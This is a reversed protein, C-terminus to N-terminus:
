NWKQPPCVLGIMHVPVDDGAKGNRCQQDEADEKSEETGLSRM